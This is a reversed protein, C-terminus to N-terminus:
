DREAPVSKGPQDPEAPQAVAVYRYFRRNCARCRFPSKRFSAM